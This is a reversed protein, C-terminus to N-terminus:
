PRTRHYLPDFSEGPIPEVSENTTSSKSEEETIVMDPVYRNETQLTLGLLTNFLGQITRELRNIHNAQAEIVKEYHKGVSFM